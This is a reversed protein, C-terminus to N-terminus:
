APWKTEIWTLAKDVAPFLREHWAIMGEESLKQPKRKFVLLDRLLKEDIAFERALLGIRAEIENPVTQGTLRLAESLRLMLPTCSRALFIPYGRNHTRTVFAHALRLRLNRLAQECLFRELQPDIKLDKLPDAGALVRYNRQISLFKPAFARASREFGKRGLIFPDLQRNNGVIRSIAQHASPNSENLVILFNIDSVGEVADGRVSSGYVCCSYLNNGLSKKL